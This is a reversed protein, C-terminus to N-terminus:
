HIQAHSHTVVIASSKCEVYNYYIAVYFLIFWFLSEGMGDSKIGNKSWFLQRKELDVKLLYSEPKRKFFVRTVQTGIEMMMIAEPLVDRTPSRPLTSSTAM